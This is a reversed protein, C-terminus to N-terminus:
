EGKKSKLTSNKLCKLLLLKLIQGAREEVIKVKM